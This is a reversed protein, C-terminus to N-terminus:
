MGYPFDKENILANKRVHKLADAYIILYDIGYNVRRRMYEDQINENEDPNKHFLQGVNRIIIHEPIYCIRTNKYSGARLDTVPYAGGISVSVTIILGPKNALEQDECYLFFNKLAPTAMGNWDPTIFVFGDSEKLLLSLENWTDDQEQSRLTKETWFDLPNKDLMLQLPVKIKKERLIDSIYLAVRDSESKDRQSGCIISIKM